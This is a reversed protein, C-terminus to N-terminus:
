QLYTMSGCFVCYGVGEADRSKRFDGLNSRDSPRRVKGRDDKVRKRNVLTASENGLHLRTRMQTILM